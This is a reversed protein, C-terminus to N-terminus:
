WCHGAAAPSLVQADGHFRGWNWLELRELRFGPLRFDSDEPKENPMAHVAIRVEQLEGAGFRAKVIRMIEFAETKAPGLATDKRYAQMFEMRTLQYPRDAAPCGALLFAM